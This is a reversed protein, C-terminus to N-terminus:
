KMVTLLWSALDAVDPNSGRSRYFTGGLLIAVYNSRNIEPIPPPTGGEISKTIVIEATDVQRLTVTWTYKERVLKAWLFTKTELTETSMEVCAVYHMAGPTKAAVNEPLKDDVGYIGALVLSEDLGFIPLDPKKNKECVNKVVEKMAQRAQSGSSKSFATYTDSKASEVSKTGAETGTNKAAEAVKKLAGLFDESGSLNAAWKLYGAAVQDKALPQDKSEFFSIATQYRDIAGAFDNKEIFADGWETYLKAQAAKARIAPGASALPEPDTSVAQDFKTKADEFQKQAQLALGWDLYTQALERQASKIDETKEASEAWTKFAKLTNEAGSFDSSDRQDKAWAIYIEPMLSTAEAAASAKGFSQLVLNITEVSDSYKKAALQEKASATLVVASHEYAESVFLGQPYSETYTKYANYADRWVKKEENELAFSYLACEKTQDAISPDAMFAPYVNAYFNDLALVQDCNKDQYSSKISNPLIFNGALYIGLLVVLVIVVAIVIKVLKANVPKTESM